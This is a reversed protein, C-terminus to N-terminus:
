RLPKPSYKRRLARFLCVLLLVVLTDGAFLLPLSDTVFLM